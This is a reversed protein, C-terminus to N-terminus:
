KWDTLFFRVSENKVYKKKGQIVKEPVGLWSIQIRGLGIAPFQEYLIEEIEIARQKALQKDKNVYVVVQLTGKSHNTIITGVLQLSPYSSDLVSKGFREFKIEALTIARRGFFHNEYSFDGLANLHDTAQLAYQGSSYWKLYELWAMQAAVDKGEIDLILARNYLAAANIPLERLVADYSNLAQQLKGNKLQLHGLYLHAQPLRGNLQLAREYNIKESNTDGM